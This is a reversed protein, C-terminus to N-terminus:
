MIETITILESLSCVYFLPKKSGFSTLALLNRCLGAKVKQMYNFSLLACLSFM